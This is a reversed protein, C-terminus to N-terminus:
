SQLSPNDANKSFRAGRNSCLYSLPRYIMAHHSPVISDLCLTRGLVFFSERNAVYRSSYLKEQGGSSEGCAVRLCYNYIRPGVGPM